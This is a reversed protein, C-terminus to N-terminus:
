CCGWQLMETRMSGLETSMKSARNKVNEAAAQSLAINDDQVDKLAKKAAQIETWLDTAYHFLQSAIQILMLMQMPIAVSKPPYYSGIRLQPSNVMAQNPSNAYGKQNICVKM